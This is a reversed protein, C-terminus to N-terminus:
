VNCFDSVLGGNASYRGTVPAPTTPSRSVDTEYFKYSINFFLLSLSFYIALAKSYVHKM